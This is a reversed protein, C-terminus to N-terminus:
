NGALRERYSSAIKLAREGSVSGPPGHLDVTYVFPGDIFGVWYGDFPREGETEVREFDAANASRHIDGRARFTM